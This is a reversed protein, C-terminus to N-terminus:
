PQEGDDDIIVHVDNDCDYATWSWSKRAVGDDDVYRRGETRDSFKCHHSKERVYEAKVHGKPVERCGVGAIVLFCLIRRIM